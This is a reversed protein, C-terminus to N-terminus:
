FHKLNDKIVSTDSDIDEENTSSASSNDKNNGESPSNKNDLMITNLDSTRLCKQMATNIFKLATRIKGLIRPSRM